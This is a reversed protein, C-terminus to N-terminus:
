PHGTGAAMVIWGIGWGLLGSLLLAYGRFRRLLILAALLGLPIFFWPWAFAATQLRFWEAVWGSASSPSPVSVSGPTALGVAIALVLGFLVALLCTWPRAKPDGAGREAQELPRGHAPPIRSSIYSTLTSQEGPLAFEPRLGPLQRVFYVRGWPPVFRDLRVYATAPFWSVRSERVQAWPVVVWRWFRRYEMREESLRVEALTFHFVALLGLALSLAMAPGRGWLLVAPLGLIVSLWYKAIMSTTHNSNLVIKGREHM